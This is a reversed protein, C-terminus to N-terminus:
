FVEGTKERSICQQKNLFGLKLKFALDVGVLRWEMISIKETNYRALPIFFVETSCSLFGQGVAIYKVGEEKCYM